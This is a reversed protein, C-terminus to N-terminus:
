WFTKRFSGVWYFCDVWHPSEVSECELMVVGELPHTGFYSCRETILCLSRIGPHVPLLRCSSKTQIFEEGILKIVINIFQHEPIKQMRDDGEELFIKDKSGAPGDRLGPFRDKNLINFIFIQHIFDKFRNQEWSRLAIKKGVSHRSNRKKQCAAWSFHAPGECTDEHIAWVDFLYLSQSAFKEMLVTFDPYFELVYSKGDFHFSFSFGELAFKNVWGVTGKVLFVFGMISALYWLVDCSPVLFLLFNSYNEALEKFQDVIISLGGFLHFKREIWKNQGIVGTNELVYTRM